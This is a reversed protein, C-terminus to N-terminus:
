RSSLSNSPRVIFEQIISVYNAHKFPFWYNHACSYPIHISRNSINQEIAADYEDNILGSSGLINNYKFINTVIYKIHIYINYIYIHCPSLFYSFILSYRKNTYFVTMFSRPSHKFTQRDTNTQRHRNTETQTPRNAGM